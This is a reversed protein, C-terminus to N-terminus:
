PSAQESDEKRPRGIKVTARYQELDAPRILKRGYKVIYTLSGRHVATRIGAPTLGAKEAAEDITLLEEDGVDTNYWYLFVSRNCNDPSCLIM